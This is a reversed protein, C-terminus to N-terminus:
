DVENERIPLWNFMEFSSDVYMAFQGDIFLSFMGDGNDVLFNEEARFVGDDDRCADIFSEASTAVYPSEWFAPLIIFMYSALFLAVIAVSYCVAPVVRKSRSKERLVLIELRDTLEDKNSILANGLVGKTHRDTKDSKDKKDLLDLGQLFSILEGKNSVAFQDCKLEQAFLFNRRLVYVLPNWWFVCCILEVIFGTLYDKDQIHKWEHLLIPRLKDPSFEVVPLIIYPKVATALATNVAKNRFVYFQKGSGIIEALMAEAQEDRETSGLWTMTPHFKNIYDYLFRSTLWVAVVVWIFILVNVISVPIGFVPYPVIERRLFSIIAPYLNESFIVVAGPMDVAIFMRLISLVLLLLLPVVSFMIPFKMKRMVLGLLVFTSFWMVGMVFSYISVYHHIVNGM